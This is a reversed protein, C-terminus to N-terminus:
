LKTVRVCVTGDLV